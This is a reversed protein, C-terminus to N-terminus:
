PPPLEVLNAKPKGLGRCLDFAELGLSHGGTKLIRIPAPTPRALIGILHLKLIPGQADATDGGLTLVPVLERGRNLPGLGILSLMSMSPRILSFRCFAIFM